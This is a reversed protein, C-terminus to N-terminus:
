NGIELAPDGLLGFTDIVERMEATGANLTQKARTLAQGLTPTSNEFLEAFLARMLERQADPVSLGTPVVGAIIGGSNSFLLEEALSDRQPHYFFGDLCTPTFLIPLRDGNALGGVDDTSFLPGEAWTDVSGHGVYAVVLAGSNWRSVLDARTAKVDGKYASLYLKDPTLRPSVQAALADSFSNFTPEKDDAVFIGMRRWGADRPASEYAIIKSVARGVQEKTKAPIRGIALTPHPDTPSTAVFWNDSAAQGLHPTEVLYTPVLNKNPGNLYNRYDYSAKGVLLVYRPKVSAIYKAIALPSDVGYNLDDYIETTTAVVVKLGHKTRWDVLPQLADKLDPHTIIVYDAQHAQEVVPSTSMPILRATTQFAAQSIAMWRHLGAERSTFDLSTRGPSANSVRRPDDPHSIDFIEIGEGTFGDVHFTGPGSQFALMNQQAVLQRTYTVQVSSMLVVDVMAKTDGPAVLRLTNGASRVVAAPVEGKISRLGQGDWFDDAVQTENFFLRLHHDPNAPDQSSGWLNVQVQVRNPLASPLTLTITTTAPATLSQWFWSGGLDGPQPVFLSPHALQVFDQLSDQLSGGAPPAAWDEIRKGKQNGWTLWYVNFASYPSEGAQGYFDVALDKGEGQVRVAIEQDGTLVQITAPDIRSTNVGAARLAAGTVRYFGDASILLKYRSIGENSSPQCAPLLALWLIALVSFHRAPTM